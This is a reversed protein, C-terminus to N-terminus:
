IIVPINFFILGIETKIPCFGDKLINTLINCDKKCKRFAQSIFLQRFYCRFCNGMSVQSFSKWLESFNHFHLYCKVMLKMEGISELTEYSSWFKIEVNPARLSIEKSVINLVTMELLVLHRFCIKFNMHFVQFYQHFSASSSMKGANACTRHVKFNRKRENGHSITKLTIEPM